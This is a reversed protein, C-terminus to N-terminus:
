VLKEPSVTRFQGTPDKGYKIRYKRAANDYLNTILQDSHRFFDDTRHANKRLAIAIYCFLGVMAATSIILMM